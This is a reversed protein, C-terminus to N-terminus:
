DLGVYGFGSISTSIGWKRLVPFVHPAWNSGPQGYTVPNVGFIRRVDDLGPEERCEFEAVGDDWDLPGLYEAIQPRLGHWNSHFGIDHKQLEDIVRYRVRQEMVRAKQGVVKFTGRVGHKTLIAALRGAADDTQPTTCDEVDFWYLAYVPKM